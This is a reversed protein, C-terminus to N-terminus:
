ASTTSRAAYGQEAAKRYWKVAKAYDQTVGRGNDYMLGLHVPRRCKRPRRGQPVVRRGRTTRPCAKATPTCLASTLSRQADGQDAAKRYWDLAQADDQPVGQGNAYMVGIAAQSAADGQEAAERLSVPTAYGANEKGALRRSFQAVAADHGERTSRQAETRPTALLERQKELVYFM